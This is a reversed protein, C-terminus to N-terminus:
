EETVPARCSPPMDDETENGANEGADIWVMRDTPLLGAIWAGDAARAAEGSAAGAAPPRVGIDVGGPGGM